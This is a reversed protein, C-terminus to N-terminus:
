RAMLRRRGGAAGLIGTGLLILSGPEPTAEAPPASRSAVNTFLFADDNYDLDSGGLPLDEMGVYTGAPYRVDDLRGGSFSTVYAHNVGDASNEPNTSFLGGLSQNFLQFELTDGAHVHGFNAEAGLSTTQNDFFFQSTYGTTVDIMRIYDTDGADSSAFYGTVNGTAAATLLTTPAVSGPNAYPISDALVASSGLVLTAFALVASLRFM